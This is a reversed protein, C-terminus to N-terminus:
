EDNEQDDKDSRWGVFTIGGIVLAGPVLYYWYESLFPWAAGLAFIGILLAWAVGKYFDDETEVRERM